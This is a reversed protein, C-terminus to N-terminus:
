EGWKLLEMYDGIETMLLNIVRLNTLEYSVDRKQMDLISYLMKFKVHEILSRIYVVGCVIRELVKGILAQTKRM